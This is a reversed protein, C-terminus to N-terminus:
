GMRPPGSAELRRRFHGLDSTSVDPGLMRTTTVKELEALIFLAVQRAAPTLSRRKPTVFCLERFMAPNRIPRFVVKRGTSSAAALRPILAICTVQEVISMLVSISSTEYKPKPLLTGVDPHRDLMERMATGQSLTTAFPHSRIDLWTLVKKCALPHDARCIIGIRDKLLFSSEIMETPRVFNGLGFDAYGQSVQKTVQDGVHEMVRVSIGPYSKFLRAIAPAIALAIVSAGAVVTVSGQERQALARLNELGGDLDELTRTALPLFEQGATTLEVSRGSRDFLRLGVGAELDRIQLTLASQSVNLRGAARTFSAHTAVTVFARLQKLTVKKM